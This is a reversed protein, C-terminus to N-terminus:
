LHQFFISEVNENLHSVQENAFHYIHCLNNWKINLKTREGSGRINHSLLCKTTSVRKYKKIRLSVTQRWVSLKSNLCLPLNTWFFVQCIWLTCRLNYNELINTCRHDFVFIVLKDYFMSRTTNTCNCLDELCLLLAM